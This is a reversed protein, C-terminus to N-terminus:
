ALAFADADCTSLDTVKSWNDVINSCSATNFTACTGFLYSFYYPWEYCHVLAKRSLFKKPFSGPVICATKFFVQTWAQQENSSMTTGFGYKMLCMMGYETKRLTRSWGINPRAEWNHHTLGTKIWKKIGDESYDHNHAAKMDVYKSCFYNTMYDRQSTTLLQQEEPTFCLGCTSDYSRKEEGSACGAGPQWLSSAGTAVEGLVAL